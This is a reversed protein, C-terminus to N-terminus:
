KKQFIKYAKILVPIEAIRKLKIASRANYQLTKSPRFFIVQLKEPDKDCIRLLLGFSEEFFRAKHDFTVILKELSSVKYSSSCADVFILLHMGM